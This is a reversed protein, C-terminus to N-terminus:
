QSRSIQVKLFPEIASAIPNNLFFMEKCKSPTSAQALSDQKSGRVRFLGLSYFASQPETHKESM